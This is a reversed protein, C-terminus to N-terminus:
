RDARLRGTISAYCIATSIRIRGTLSPGLKDLTMMSAPQSQKVVQQIAIYNTRHTGALAKSAIARSSHAGKRWPTMACSDTVSGDHYPPIKGSKRAVSNGVRYLYVVM